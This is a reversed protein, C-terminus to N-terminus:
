ASPLGDILRAHVAGFPTLLRLPVPVQDGPVDGAEVAAVVEPALGHGRAFGEITRGTAGRALVAAAAVEPHELHLHAFGATLRTALPQLDPRQARASPHRRRAGV